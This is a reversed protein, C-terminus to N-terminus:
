LQIFIGVSVDNGRETKLMIIVSNTSSTFAITTTSDRGDRKTEEAVALDVGSMGRLQAVINDFEARGGEMGLQYMGMMTMATFETKGPPAQLGSLGYGAWVDDAPWAIYGGSAGFSGGGGIGAGGGLSLCSTMSFGIVAVMAIIGIFKFLNKM